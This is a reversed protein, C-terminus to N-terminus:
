AGRPRIWCFTVAGALWCGSGALGALATLYGDNYRALEHITSTHPTLPTLPLLSFSHVPSIISGLAVLKNDAVIM